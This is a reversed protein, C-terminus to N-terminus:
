QSLAEQVAALTQLGRIPGMFLAEFLGVQRKPRFDIVMRQTLSGGDSRRAIELAAKVADAEVQYFKALVPAFRDPMFENNPDGGYRLSDLLEVGKEFSTVRGNEHLIKAGDSSSRNFRKVLDMIHEHQGKELSMRWKRLNQQKENRKKDASARRKAGDAAAKEGAAIMELCNTYIEQIEDRVAMGTAHALIKSLEARLLGAASLNNRRIEKRIEKHIKKATSLTADEREQAWDLESKTAEDFKGALEDTIAKLDIVSDEVTSMATQLSESAAEYEDFDRAKVASIFDDLADEILLYSTAELEALVKEEEEQEILAELEAEEEAERLSAAEDEAAKEAEREKRRIIKSADLEMIKAATVGGVGDFKCAKIKEADTGRIKTVINTATTKGFPKGNSKEFSAIIEVLETDELMAIMVMHDQNLVSTDKGM